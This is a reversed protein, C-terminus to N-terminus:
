CNIGEIYNTLYDIQYITKVDEYELNENSQMTTLSYKILGIKQLVFLINTVIDDNSRTSVCIGIHRKVDSLTFVFGKENNAYYRLLLYIYTSIANDSLTNLLLRLTSTPILAAVEAPLISLYYRDGKLESILGLQVLHKFRTSATQRTIGLESAIRSFNVVSKQIYRPNGNKGDWDSNEQLYSYLIDHYRKDACIKQIKPIQRLDKVQKM